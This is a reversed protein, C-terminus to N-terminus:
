KKGAKYKVLADALQQKIADPMRPDKSALEVAKTQVEIAKASDGKEWYARALTDMMSGEQHKTVEVARAAMAMALDVDRKKISADDLITWAITNLDEPSDKIGGAFVERAFEYALDLQGMDVAVSKFTVGAANPFMSPDLRLMERVIEFSEKARGGTITGRLKGGLEKARAKAEEKKKSADAATKPDFKGSLVQELTEEMKEMPHGIWAINGKGDVIFASPIGNRNAAKMWTESMEAEDGGYAVSYDMKDGMDAVYKEVDPLPNHPTKGDKEKTEEWISVGIVKVGRDKFTKGVESLHPITKRCPGCWTAWFEVVYVTGAQFGKIEDGKVWKAVKLAPAPDGVALRKSAAPAKAPAPQADQALATGAASAVVAAALAVVIGTRAVIKM